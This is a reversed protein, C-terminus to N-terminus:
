RLGTERWFLSPKRRVAPLDDSRWVRISYVRGDVVEFSIPYPTYTWYQGATDLLPIQMSEITTPPGLQRRVDQATSGLELCSCSHPLPPRQGTLQVSHAIRQDDIEEYQVVFYAGAGTGFDNFLLHAFADRGEQTRVARWPRGLAKVVDEEAQGVFITGIRLCPGITGDADAPPALCELTSEGDRYRVALTYPGEGPLSDEGATCALEGESGRGLRQLYPLVYQNEPNLFLTGGAFWRAVDSLGLETYAETLYALQTELFERPARRIGAVAARTLEFAAKDYEAADLYLAGLKSYAEPFHMDIAVATDALDIQHDLSRVLRLYVERSEPRRHDIRFLARAYAELAFPNTSDASLAQAAIEAASGFDGSDYAARSRTIQGMVADSPALTHPAVRGIPDDLGLPRGTPLSEPPVVHLLVWPKGHFAYILTDPESSHFTVYPTEQATAVNGFLALAISLQATKM